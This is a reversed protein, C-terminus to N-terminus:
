WHASEQYARGTKPDYLIRHSTGRAMWM